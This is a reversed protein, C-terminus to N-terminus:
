PNSPPVPPEPVTAPAAPQPPPQSPPEPQKKTPRLRKWMEAVGAVFSKWNRRVEKWDGRAMPGVFPLEKRQGQAAAIFGFACFGLIVLELLRGVFPVAWFLISLVFLVIGQKAHFRVFPSHRRTVFVILSLIWVYSLAAMDKNEEVDDVPPQAVAPPMDPM